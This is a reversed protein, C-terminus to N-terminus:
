LRKNNWYLKVWLLRIQGRFPSLFIFCFVFSQVFSKEHMVAAVTKDAIPPSAIFRGTLRSTNSSVCDANRDATIMTQPISGSTSSGTKAAGSMSLPPFFFHITPISARSATSYTTIPTQILM